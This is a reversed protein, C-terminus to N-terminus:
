RGAPGLEDLARRFTEREGRGVRSLAETWRARADDPRGERLDCIGLRFLAEADGPSVALVREYGARARAAKGLTLCLGAWRATARVADPSPSPHLIEHVPGAFIRLAEGAGPAVGRRRALLRDYDEDSPLVEALLPASSARPGLLVAAPSTALPTWEGSDLRTEVFSACARSEYQVLLAHLNWSKRMREFARPDERAELYRGLWDSGAVELRGDIFTPLGPVRWAIWGGFDIDHFLERPLGPDALVTACEEPDRGITVGLGRPRPIGLLPGSAGVLISIALAAAVIGPARAAWRRPRWREAIETLGAALGPAAAIAFLPVNRRALFALAVFPLIALFRPLAARRAGAALVVAVVGLLIWFARLEADAPADLPRGFELIRSFIGTDADIRRFLTLPFMWASPGYPNALMALASAVFALALPRAARTEAARAGSPGTRSALLAIGAHWALVLPGLFALSHFNIWVAVLVPVAVLARPSGGARTRLVLLHVTALAVYSLIEPRAFTREASALTALIVAVTAAAPTAGAARAAGTLLLAVTALLAAKGLVLADPGGWGWVRYALLDGLWQLNVWAHGTMTFSFPDARPVHGHQAIWRGSALHWWLDPTLIPHLGLAAALAAVGAAGTRRGEV